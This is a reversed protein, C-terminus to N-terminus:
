SSGRPGWHIISMLLWRLVDVYLYGICGALRSPSPANCWGNVNLHLTSSRAVPLEAEQVGNPKQHNKPKSNDWCVSEGAGPPTRVQACCSMEEAKDSCRGMLNNRVCTASVAEVPVQQSTTRTARETINKWLCTRSGTEPLRHGRAGIDEGGAQLHLQAHTLANTPHLNSRRAHRSSVLVKSPPRTCPSTSNTFVGQLTWM